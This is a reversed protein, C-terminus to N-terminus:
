KFTIIATINGNGYKYEKIELIDKYDSVLVDDVIYKIADSTLFFVEIYSKEKDDLLFEGESFGADKLYNKITLKLTKLIM